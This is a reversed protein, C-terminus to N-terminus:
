TPRTVNLSPLDTAGHSSLQQRIQDTLMDIDFPKLILADVSLDAQEAVIWAHGTLLLLPVAGFRRRLTEIYARAAEPRPQAVLLDSIVVDPVFAADIQGLGRAVRLEYGLDGVIDALIEATADDDEIILVRSRATSASMSM